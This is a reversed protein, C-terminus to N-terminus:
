VNYYDKIKSTLRKLGKVAEELREITFAAQENTLYPIDLETECVHAIIEIQKEFENIRSQATDKNKKASNGWLAQAIHEVLPYSNVIQKSKDLIELALDAAKRDQPSLYELDSILVIERMKRFTSDNVGLKKSVLYPETGDEELALGERVLSEPTHGKPISIRSHGGHQSNRENLATMSSNKPARKVVEKSVTFMKKEGREVSAIEEPTGYRLVTRARDVQRMSVDAIEAAEKTTIPRDAMQRITALESEAQEALGQSMLGGIRAYDPSGRQVFTSRKAIAMARQATDLHRRAVNQSWVYDLPSGDICTFDRMRPKLGLKLCAIYRNRGDLVQDDLMVIVERQGHAKIDAIFNDM